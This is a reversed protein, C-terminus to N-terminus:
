KRSIAILLRFLNHCQGFLFELALWALRRRDFLFRLGDPLFDTIEWWRRKPSFRFDAIAVRPTRIREDSSQKELRGRTTCEATTPL